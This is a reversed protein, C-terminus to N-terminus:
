VYKIQTLFWCSWEFITILVEEFVGVNINSRIYQYQHEIILSLWSLDQLKNLKQLMKQM